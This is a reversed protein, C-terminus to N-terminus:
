THCAASHRLVATGRAPRSSVTCALARRRIRPHLIHTHKSPLQRHSPHWEPDNPTLYAHYSFRSLPTVLPYRAFLDLMPYHYLCVIHKVVNGM